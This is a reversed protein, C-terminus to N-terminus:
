SISNLKERKAARVQKIIPGYAEKDFPPCGAPWQGLPHDKQRM